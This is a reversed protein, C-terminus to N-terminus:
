TGITIGNADFYTKMQELVFDDSESFAALSGTEPTVYGIKITDGSSGSSTGDGSSGAGLACGSLAVVIASAVAVAAVRLSPSLKM